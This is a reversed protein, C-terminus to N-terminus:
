NIHVSDNQEIYESPTCGFYTKFCKTFYSPSGFGVLYVVESITRAKQVLMKAATQLRQIRIFEIATYGTLSKIRRYFYNPSVSLYGSLKKVDLELDDIHENIVIVAKNLIQMEKSELCVNPPKLISNIKLKTKNREINQIVNSLKLKLLEPNIYKSICDIAGSRLAVKENCVVSDEYIFLFPIHATAANKKLLEGVDYGCTYIDLLIIQPNFHIWNKFLEEIREIFIIRFVSDLNREIMRGWDYNKEVLVLLPKEQDEERQEKEIVTDHISTKYYMLEHDYISRKIELNEM